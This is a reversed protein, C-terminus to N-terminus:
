DNEVSEGSGLKEALNSIGALKDKNKAVVGFEDEMLKQLRLMYLMYEDVSAEQFTYNGAEDVGSVRQTNMTIQSPTVGGVV